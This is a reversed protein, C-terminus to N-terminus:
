HLANNKNYAIHTYVSNLLNKTNLIDLKQKAIILRLCIAFALGHKITGGASDTRLCTVYPQHALLRM